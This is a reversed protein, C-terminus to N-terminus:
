GNEEEQKRSKYIRGIEDLAILRERDDMGRIIERLRKDSEQCCYQGNGPIVLREMGVLPQVAAKQHSFRLERMEDGCRIFTAM